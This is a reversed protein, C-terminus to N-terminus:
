ETIWPGTDGEMYEVRWLGQFNIPWYRRKGKTEGRRFEARSHANESAARKSAGAETKYKAALFYRATETM